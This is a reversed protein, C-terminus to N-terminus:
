QIIELVSYHSWKTLQSESRYCKMHQMNQFHDSFQRGLSNLIHISLSTRNSEVLTFFFWSCNAQASDAARDEVRIALELPLLTHSPCTPPFPNDQPFALPRGCHWILVAKANQAGPAQKPQPTPLTYPLFQSFVAHSLRPGRLIGRLGTDRCKEGHLAKNTDRAM